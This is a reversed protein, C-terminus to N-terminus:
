RGFYRFKRLTETEQFILFNSKTLYLSNNQTKRKRFNFFLKSFLLFTIPTETEQFIHVAKTQSFLLFNKINSNSLEMKGFYLPTSKRPTSKQKNKSSPSFLADLLMSIVSINRIYGKEFMQLVMIRKQLKQCQCEVCLNSINKSRWYPLNLLNIGGQKLTQGNYTRLWFNKLVPSNKRFWPVDIFIEDVVCSLFAGCPFFMPKKEQFSKFGCKFHSISGLISVILANRELIEWNKLFPM